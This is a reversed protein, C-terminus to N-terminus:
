ERYYGHEKAWRSIEDSTWERSTAPNIGKFDPITPKARPSAGGSPKVFTPETKKAQEMQSGAKMGRQEASSIASKLTELEEEQKALNFLNQFYNPGTRLMPYKDAVEKMKPYHSKWDPNREVFGQIDKQNDRIQQIRMMRQTYLNPDVREEETPNPDFFGPPFEPEPAKIEKDFLLGEVLKKMRALEETTEHLKRQTDRLPEHTVVEPEPSIEEAPEVAPSPEMPIEYPQESIPKPEGTDVPTNVPSGAESDSEALGASELTLPREAVSLIETKPPPTALNKDKKAM